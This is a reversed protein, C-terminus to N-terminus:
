QVSVKGAYPRGQGSPSRFAHGGGSRVVFYCRPKGVNVCLKNGRVSWRGSANPTRCRPHRIRVAVHTATCVHQASGDAAFRLAIRLTKAGLRREMRATRGSLLSRIQAGSLRNGSAATQIQSPMARAGTRGDASAVGPTGATALTAAVILASGKVISSM